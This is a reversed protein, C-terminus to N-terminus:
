IEAEELVGVRNLWRVKRRQNQIPNLPILSKASRIGIPPWPILYKEMEAGDELLAIPRGMYCTSHKAEVLIPRQMWHADTDRFGPSQVPFYHVIGAEPNQQLFIIARHAWGPAHFVADDRFIGVFESEDNYAKEIAIKLSSDQDDTGWNEIYEFRYKGAAEKHRLLEEMNSNGSEVCFPHLDYAAIEDQNSMLSRFFGEVYSGPGHSLAAISIKM